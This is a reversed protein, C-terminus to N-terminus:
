VALCGPRVIAYGYKNFVLPPPPKPRELHPRIPGATAKRRPANVHAECYGRRSWRTADGSCGPFRCPHKKM